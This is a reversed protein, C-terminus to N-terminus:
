DTKLKVYIHCSTHPLSSGFCHLSLVSQIPKCNFNLKVEITIKLPDFFLSMETLVSHIYTRISGNLYTKKLNQASICSIAFIGVTKFYVNIGIDVM